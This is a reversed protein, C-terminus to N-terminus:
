RLGRLVVFADGVYWVVQGGGRRIGLVRCRCVGRAWLAAAPAMGLANDM